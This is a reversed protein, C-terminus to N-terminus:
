PNIRRDTLAFIALTILGAELAHLLPGGARSIDLLNFYILALWFLRSSLTMPQGKRDTHTM